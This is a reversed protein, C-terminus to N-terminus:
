NSKANKLHDTFEIKTFELGEVICKEVAKAGENNGVHEEYVMLIKMDNVSVMDLDNKSALRTLVRDLEKKPDFSEKLVEGIKQPEQAKKVESLKTIESSPVGKSELVKPFNEKLDAEIVEDSLVAIVELLAEYQEKSMSEYTVGKAILDAKLWAKGRKFKAVLANLKKEVAVAKDLVKLPKAPEVPPLAQPVKKPEEVSEVQMAQRPTKSAIRRNLFETLDWIRKGQEDVPYPSNQAKKEENTKVYQIDMSYLFRGVGWKVAARKFADSARGKEKETNSETGCDWRWEWEGNIRIGIGGFLQGAIEKYDSQWGEVCFEDLVNQVDRSDIYAVCSAQPKAKSVSQVRWQFPIPKALSKLLKARDVEVRNVKEIMMTSM